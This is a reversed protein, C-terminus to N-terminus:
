VSGRRRQAARRSMCLALVCLTLLMAAALGYTPRVGLADILAYAALPGLGSGLDGMIQYGGIAIGRQGRTLDGLWAVLLPPVLGFAIASALIALALAWPTRGLAFTLLGAVGLGFGLAILRVREGLRDSLHGLTPGIVVSVINRVFLLAATLSAIGLPRTGWHIEDGLLTRLYLGFTAYFVGAFFFRHALNLIGILLLRRDARRFMGLLAAGWGGRGIGAAQRAGAQARLSPLTLSLAFGLLTCAGLARMASAFGLADVLAGGLMAGLGGGFFSFSSYIGTSRGRTQETTLTLIMGYAAVTLLAWSVGWLARLILLVAVNSSIGYGATSLAGVLLGAVYPRKFGLRNSLWGSIANMPLRALRNMSLLWGVQLAAIGIAQHQSPLVAYMTADGLLSLATCVTLTWVVRPVSPPSPQPRKM